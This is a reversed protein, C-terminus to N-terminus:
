RLFRVLSEQMQKVGAEPSIDGALMKQYIPTWVSDFHATAGRLGMWKPSHLDANSITDLLVKYLPDDAYFPDALAQKNAPIMGNTKMYLGRGEPSTYFKLYDIAQNDNKSQAFLALAGVYMFEGRGAPGAPARFMGYEWGNKAFAEKTAQMEWPGMMAMAVKGARFNNPVDRVTDSLTSPPSLGEKHLNVLFRFAAVTQPSDWTVPEDPQSNAYKASRVLRGGFSKAISIYQRWPGGEAAATLSVGWQDVRGSGKTDRTLAKAIQQFEEWTQPAKEPDLGAAKFMTKNYFWVETALMKPIAWIHADKEGQKAFNVDSWAVDFISAKWAPDVFADLKKVFGVNAAQGVDGLRGIDPLGSGATHAALVKQNHSAWPTQEIKIKIGPNKAEFAAILKNIGDLDAPRLNTQWQTLTVPQQSFAPAGSFAIGAAM